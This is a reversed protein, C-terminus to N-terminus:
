HTPALNRRMTVVNFYVSIINHECTRQGRLASLVIWTIVRYKASTLAHACMDHSTASVYHMRMSNITCLVAHLKWM